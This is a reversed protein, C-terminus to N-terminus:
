KVFVLKPVPGVLAGWSEGNVGFAKSKWVMFGKRLREKLLREQEKRLIRYSEYSMGEPRATLLEEKMYRVEYAEPHRERKRSM